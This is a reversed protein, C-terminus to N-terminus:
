SLNKPEGGSDSATQKSVPILPPVRPPRSNPIPPPVRNASSRRQPKSRGRDMLELIAVGLMGVVAGVVTLIGANKQVEPVQAVAILSFIGGIIAGAAFRGLRSKSLSAWLRELLRHNMSLRAVIHFIASLTPNSGVTPNVVCAKWAHAKFWEAM